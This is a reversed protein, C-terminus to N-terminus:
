GEALSSEKKRALRRARREVGSLGVFHGAGEGLKEGRHEGEKRIKDM